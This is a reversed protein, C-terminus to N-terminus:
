LFSFFTNSHVKGRTDIRAPCHGDMIQIYKVAIYIPHPNDANKLMSSDISGTLIPIMNRETKITFEYSYLTWQGERYRLTKTPELIQSNPDSLKMGVHCNQGSDDCSDSKLAAFQVCYNGSTLSEVAIKYNAISKKSQKSDMLLVYEQLEDLNASVKPLYQTTSGGWSGGGGSKENTGCPVSNPGFERCSFWLSCNSNPVISMLIFVLIFMCVM